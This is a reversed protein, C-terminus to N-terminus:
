MVFELDISEALRCKAERDLDRFRLMEECRLLMATPDVHPPKSVFDPAIPFELEPPQERFSGVAVEIERARERSKKTSTPHEM